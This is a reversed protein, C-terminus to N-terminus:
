KNSVRSNHKRNHRTFQLWAAIVCLADIKKKLTEKNSGM